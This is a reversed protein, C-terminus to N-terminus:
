WFSTGSIQDQTMPIDRFCKRCTNKHQHNIRVDPEEVSQIITRDSAPFIGAREFDTKHKEVPGVSLSPEQSLREHLATSMLQPQYPLKMQKLGTVGIEPLSQPTIIGTSARTRWSGISWAADTTLTTCYATYEHIEAHSLTGDAMGELLYTLRMDVAALESLRDLLIADIDTDDHSLQAIGSVMHTDPCDGVNSAVAPRIVPDCSKTVERQVSSWRLRSPASPSNQITNSAPVDQLRTILQEPNPLNTDLKHRKSLRESSQLSYRDFSRSNNSQGM